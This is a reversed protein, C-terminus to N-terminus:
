APPPLYRRALLPSLRDLDATGVLHAPALERVHITLRKQPLEHNLYRLGPKPGASECGFSALLFALRDADTAGGGRSRQTQGTAFRWGGSSSRISSASFRSARRPVAFPAASRAVSLPRMNALIFVATARESTSRFLTLCFLAASCRAGRPLSRGEPEPRKACCPASAVIISSRESSGILAELSSLARCFSVGGCTANLYATGGGAVRDQSRALRSM